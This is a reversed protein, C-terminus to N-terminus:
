EDKDPDVVFIAGNDVEYKNNLTAGGVEFLVEDDAELIAGSIEVKDGLLDGGLVAILGIDVTTGPELM